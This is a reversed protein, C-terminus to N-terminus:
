WAQYGALYTADPRQMAILLSNNFSYHYFKSMVKLFDAYRRGTLIDHCGDELKKSIESIKEEDTKYDKKQDHIGEKFSLM